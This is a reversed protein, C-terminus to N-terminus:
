VRTQVLAVAWNKDPQVRAPELSEVARWLREPRVNPHVSLCLFVPNVCYVTYYIYIVHKIVLNDQHGQVVAQPHHSEERQPHLSDRPVQPEPVLHPIKSCYTIRSSFWRHKERRNSELLCSKQPHLCLYLAM